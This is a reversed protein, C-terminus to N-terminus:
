AECKGHVDASVVIVQVAGNRGGNDSCTRVFFNLLSVYRFCVADFGLNAKTRFLSHHVVRERTM